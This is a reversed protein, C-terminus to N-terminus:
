KSELIVVIRGVTDQGRLGEYLKGGIFTCLKRSDELPYEFRSVVQRAEFLLSGEPGGDHGAELVVSCEGVTSCQLDVCRNEYDHHEEM